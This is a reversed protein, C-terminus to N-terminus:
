IVGKNIIYTIDEIYIKDIMDYPIFMYKGNEEIDVGTKTLVTVIGKYVDETKLIIRVINGIKVTQGHEDYLKM